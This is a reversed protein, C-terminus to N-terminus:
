SFEERTKLLKSVSVNSITGMKHGDSEFDVPRLETFSRTGAFHASLRTGAEQLDRESVIDYRDFVSRTKHGSITMAVRESIGARVMNRVGTRRLDHFLRGELGVQKTARRWAKTLRTLRKGKFHCIWPCSPWSTLTKARWQSLVNLLDKVLPIVRGEGTKTTGPALRLLARELDVQDWRLSLIEGKRMGTWYGISLPVKQHDPLVGRMVLFDDHEFFGTRVSHEKFRPIPPVRLVKPPQQRLGLSFMRRLAGLEKNLTGNAAGQKRRREIYAAIRDSMLDVARLGDFAESLVRAYREADKVAKRGHTRYDRLYDQALETLRIKEVKLGPFRGEIVQGERLALLHKAETIKDSHTSERFPRGHRYYKIWYTSDRKYITGM